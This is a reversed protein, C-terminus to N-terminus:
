GFYPRAGAISARPPSRQRRQEARAKQWRHLCQVDTHGRFFEAIKKWNKGKHLQVARRLM